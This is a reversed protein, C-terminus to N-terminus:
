PGQLHHFPPLTTLRLDEIPYGVTFNYLCQWRTDAIGVLRHVEDDFFCGIGTGRMGCAEATLYLIQGILGCEWHLHRYRYPADVLCPTFRALMSVAFASTGAIEQHCSVEMAEVTVEGPQLRWLPFGAWVRQWALDPRWAAQLSAPREQTRLLLYLGPRLDEVRHVFLLLDVAPPAPATSFPPVGARPLTVELISRFAEQTCTSRRADFNVASRRRRIIEGASLRRWSGPVGASTAPGAAGEAAPVAPRTAARAARGIIPWDVPRSSLPRPRGSFTLDGFLDLMSGPLTQAPLESEPDTSIWCLLEPEEEELPHWRTRHFGLLRGIQDDGVGSLRTPRWGLVRAALALAALAHGIDLQCYRFAREGYKWSERWFISTLAMFFGPGPIEAACPAWQELSLTARQELAHDVPLYHFVGVSLNDVPPLILYGETPHLNGSSPNARLAWRSPGAAKWATLGLCLELFQGIGGLTLPRAPGAAAATFLEAFAIDVGGPAPDLPIRRAGEYRRFPDPQNAWDMYGASRAYRHLHHKTSQHYDLIIDYDSKM